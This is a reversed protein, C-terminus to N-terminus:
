DHAACHEDIHLCVLCSERSCQHDVPFDYLLDTTVCSHRKAHNCVSHTVLDDSHMCSAALLSVLAASAPSPVDSGLPLGRTGTKSWRGGRNRETLRRGGTRHADVVQLLLTM